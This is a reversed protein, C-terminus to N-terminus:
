TQVKVCLLLHNKSADAQTTRKNILISKLSKLKFFLKLKLKRKDSTEKFVFSVSQYNKKFLFKSKTGKQPVM